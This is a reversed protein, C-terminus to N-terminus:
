VLGYELDLLNRIYLISIGDTTQTVRSAPNLFYNYVHKFGIRIRIKSRDKKM